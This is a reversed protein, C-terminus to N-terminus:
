YRFREPLRGFTISCDHLCEGLFEICEHINWHSDACWRFGRNCFSTCDPADHFGQNAVRPPQRPERHQTRRALEAFVCAAENKADPEKFQIGVLPHRHDRCAVKGLFTVQEIVSVPIRIWEDCIRGEAFLIANPSDGSKVMGIRVIPTKLQGLSLAKAFEEGTFENPM